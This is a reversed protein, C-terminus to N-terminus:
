KTSFLSDKLNINVKLDKYTVVGLEKGDGNYLTAETAIPLKATLNKHNRYNSRIRLEGSGNYKERKVMRLTAPEIWVFDHRKDNGGFKPDFKLKVTKGKSDGIISVHNDTWLQSSLFGYDLSSFRKGPDNKVNDRHKIMSALVLKTYGNQIYTAKIGEAYGDVRFMNPKKYAIVAKQLMLIDGYKEGMGSVAKKNAETIFMNVQFTNLKAEGAKVKALIESSTVAMASSAIVALMTVAIVAFIRKM